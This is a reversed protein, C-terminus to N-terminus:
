NTGRRPVETGRPALSDPSVLMNPKCNLYMFEQSKGQRDGLGWGMGRVEPGDEATELTLLLLVSSQFHLWSEFGPM